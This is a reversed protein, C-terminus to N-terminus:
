SALEDPGVPEWTAAMREIVARIETDGEKAARELCVAKPTDLTVFVRRWQPSKWFDRRKRSGHTADVLVADHGARFLAEVMTRAISWVYPEASEIYRQGHLALRIADPCVIPSGDLHSLERARTTKGSRPLGCMLVLTKNM